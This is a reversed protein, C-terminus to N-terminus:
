IRLETTWDFTNPTTKQHVIGRYVAQRVEVDVERLLIQYATAKDVLIPHLILALKYAIAIKFNIDFLTPDDIDAVYQLYKSGNTYIKNEAGLEYSSDPFLKIVRLCNSPLEFVDTWEFAPCGYAQRLEVRYSAFSWNYSGLLKTRISNYNLKCARSRNDTDDINSISPEGIISLADNCIDIVVSQDEYYVTLTVYDISATGGTDYVTASFNIGFYESKVLAPTLNWGWSDSPSGLIHINENNDWERCGARSIGGSIQEYALYVFDDKVGLGKCHIAVEMGLISCSDPLTSFDFQQMKLWDTRGATATAYVDDSLKVNDPDTWHEGYGRNVNVVYGPTATISSM